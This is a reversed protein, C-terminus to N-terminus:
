DLPPALRYGDGERRYAHEQSWPYRLDQPRALGADVLEELREPYAGTAARHTELAARLREEAFRSAFREVRRDAVPRTASAARGVVALVVAALAVGMVLTALVGAAAERVRDGWTRALVGADRAASRRPPEVPRLVGQNVLNFLARAAEFEGLRSRDTIWEVSAGPVALDYVRQENRGPTGSGTREFTMAPSTIVKRVMPWEDLIRFGELLVTECRLPTGTEADYSIERPEFAYTGAKWEFLRYLTQTTQLVTMEKVQEAEVWGQEVVVAGLRRLSRRQVDLAEQLQLPTLLGARVMMTGLRDRARRGVHAASVVSGNWMEVNVEDAGARLHLVGSKGQQGILQLIEAIGFDELTGTLAM